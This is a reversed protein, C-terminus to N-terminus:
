PLGPLCTGANMLRGSTFGSCACSPVQGHESLLHLALLAVCAETGSTGGPVLRKLIHLLFGQKFCSLRVEEHETVHCILWSLPPPHPSHNPGLPGTPLSWGEAGEWCLCEPRRQPYATNSTPRKDWGGAVTSSVCGLRPLSFSRTSLPPIEEPLSCM